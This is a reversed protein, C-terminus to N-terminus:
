DGGRRDARVIVDARQLLSDGLELGIRAAAATNVQLYVDATEVPTTAPDAGRLIRDAIRAAQAGAARHIFGHTMVAGAEVQAVSPGSVPIRRRETVDLLDALRRNVTSDPVLFVADVAPFDALLRSVEADNRAEAPLLEVGLREGVGAIQRWASRPAADDPNFPVLVRKAAPVMELFLELRRAQNRALRVGTLNGGPRAPDSLVGAAVPDAIVGFVVPPGGDRTVRHAAVGTPTGATFILDVPKDVLNQIVSELEKGPTPRNSYVFELNRGEEYGLRAMEERFGEVNRLGNPNNTVLGVTVVREASQEGPNCGALAALLLSMLAYRAISALLSEGANRGAAMEASKLM